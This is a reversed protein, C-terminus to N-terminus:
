YPGIGEVEREKWLSSWYRGGREGERTLVLVKGREGERTLVLVKGREGERTLVM